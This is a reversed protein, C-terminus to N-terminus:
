ETRKADPDSPGNRDSLLEAPPELDGSDSGEAEWTGGDRGTKGRPHAMDTGDDFNLPGGSRPDDFPQVSIDAMGDSVDQEAELHDNIDDGEPMEATPDDTPDIATDPLTPTRM